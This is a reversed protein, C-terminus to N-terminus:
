LNQRWLPTQLKPIRGIFNVPRITDNENSALFRHIWQQTPRFLRKPDRSMSSSNTKKESSNIKQNHEIYKKATVKDRIQYYKIMKNAVSTRVHQKISNKVEEHRRKEEESALKEEKWKKIIDKKMENEQERKKEKLKLVEKQEEQLKQQIKKMTERQKKWHEIEEQLQKRENTKQQTKKLTKVPKRESEESHVSNQNVVTTQIDKKLEQWRKIADDNKEKLKVYKSYWLEHKKVDEVTLDPLIEHLNLSLENVDPFKKRLKLFLHHDTLSWGNEHGKSVKVFDMFKKVDNPIDNNSTDIKSSVENKYSDLKLTETWLSLRESYLKIDENLQNEAASLEEIKVQAQVKVDQIRNIVNILDEKFLELDPITNGCELIVAKRVYKLINLIDQVEIKCNINDCSLRSTQFYEILQQSESNEIKSLQNIITSQYRELQKQSNKLKNLESFYLSTM